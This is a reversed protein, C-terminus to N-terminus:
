DDFDKVEFALFSGTFGGRCLAMRRLSVSAISPVSGIILVCGEVISKGPFVMEVSVLMFYNKSYELRAEPESTTVALL